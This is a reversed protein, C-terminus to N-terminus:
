GSQAYAFITCKGKKKAKIVGKKSVTATQPRSSEYSVERHHRLPKSEKIEKAKIRWTKGTKLTVKNKNLKVSKANGNKGGKTIVHITKSVAITVKKGDIVKYARVMYKYYTGKKCKRDIYSKKNGSKIDKKLKYEYIWKKTNCRNGYIEYGDAGKVRNWTLKINKETIQSARAQIRAFYAGKIDKDTKQSRITQETVLITDMSVDLEKAAAQIKVATDPSVGLGDTIDSLDKDPLPTLSAKPTPAPSPTPALSPIPEPAVSPAPTETSVPTASPTPAETSVPTEIPRPPEPTGTPTPTLAPTPAPEPTPQLKESFTVLITHSSQISPIRYTNGEAQKEEGDITFTYSGSESPQFTLLVDEGSNVMMEISANGDTTVTTKSTKLTVAGTGSTNVKLDYTILTGEATIVINGDISDKFIVLNGTDPDYSYDTGPVAERGGVTIHITDPPQYQKGEDERGSLTATYDGETNKWVLSDNSSNLHSLRNEVQYARGIKWDYWLNDETDGDEVALYVKAVEDLTPTTKDSLLTHDASYFFLARESDIPYFPSSQGLTVPTINGDAGEGEKLIINLAQIPCDGFIVKFYIDVGTNGEANDLVIGNPLTVEKLNTCGLFAGSKLKDVGSPITIKELSSCGRFAFVEIRVVSDPLIIDKLKTCTMFAEEGILTVEGSFTVKELNQCFKFTQTGIGKIGEPLHIEKLSKCNYFVRPSIQILGDPLLIRELSQCEYFANDWIKTVDDPITVKQLNQCGYFINMPLETIGQPLVAERLSACGKFASEGISTIQDPLIVEQLSTCGKFASEGISTIQDPLIVEQLSTCGEFASEGISTTQDPLIVEQLSTCGEFASEGISTIQDSFFVEQLSTCQYFAYNGIEQIGDPLIVTQLKSCEFFASNSIKELGTPLKVTVLSKPFNRGSQSGIPLGGDSIVGEEALLSTLNSFGTSVTSSDNGSNNFIHSWDRNTITGSLAKLCTIDPYKINKSLLASQLGDGTVEMQIEGGDETVVTVQWTTLSKEQARLTITMGSMLTITLTVIVIVAIWRRLKERLRLKMKM